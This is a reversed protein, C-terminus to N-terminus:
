TGVRVDWEGERQTAPVSVASGFFSNLLLQQDANRYDDPGRSDPLRLESDIKRQLQAALDHDSIRALDIL